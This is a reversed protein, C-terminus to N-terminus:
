LIEAGTGVKRWDKLNLITRRFGTDTLPRIRAEPFEKGQAAAAKTKFRSWRSRM